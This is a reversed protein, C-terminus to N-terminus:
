RLRKRYILERVDPLVASKLEGVREYGAREYFRQAGENFDSVSLVLFRGTMAGEVAGLLARGVGSSEMGPRLAILQLYGAHGHFGQGEGFRAFGLIQGREAVLVGEGAGIARALDRALGVETVGYRVLLPQSAVAAAIRPADEAVAPRITLGAMASALM